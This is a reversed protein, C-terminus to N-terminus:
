YTNQYCKIGFAGNRTFANASISDINSKQFGKSLTSSYGQYSSFINKGTGVLTKKHVSRSATLRRTLRGKGELWMGLLHINKLKTWINKRRSMISEFYITNAQVNEIMKQNRKMEPKVRLLLFPDIRPIRSFATAKRIVRLVRKNRDKLKRVVANLLISNDLHFYKMNIINIYIKKNYINSTIEKLKSLTTHTLKLHNCYLKTVYRRYLISTLLDQQYQEILTQYIYNVNKTYISELMYNLHLANDLKLNLKNLTKLYFKFKIISFRWEKPIFGQQAGFRWNRTKRSNFTQKQILKNKFNFLFKNVIYRIKLKFWKNLKVKQKITIFLWKNVLYSQKKTFRWKKVIFWKTTVNWKKKNSILRAVLSHFWWRADLSLKRKSTSILNKSFFKWNKPYFLSMWTIKKNWIITELISKKKIVKEKEEVLTKLKKLYALKEKNFIYINITINNITHKIEAKSILIRQLSFLSNKWEGNKLNMNFYTTLLLHFPKDTLYTNLFYKNFRYISNRWENTSPNFRNYKFFHLLYEWRM